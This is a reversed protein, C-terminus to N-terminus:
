CWWCWLHKWTGNQSPPRLFELPLDIGIKRQYNEDLDNPNDDLDDNDDHDNPNDDNDDDNNDDDDDDDDDYTNVGVSDIRNNIFCFYKGTDSM